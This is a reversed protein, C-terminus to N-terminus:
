GHRHRRHHRAKHHRVCRTKGKVRKKTFGKKCVLPKPLTPV